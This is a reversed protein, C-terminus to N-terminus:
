SRAPAPHSTGTTYPTGAAATAQPLRVALVATAAALAFGTVPQAPQLFFGTLTFAPILVAYAIGPWRLRPNTRAIATGLVIASVILFFSASLATAFFTPGYATDANIAAM